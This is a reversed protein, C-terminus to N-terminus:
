GKHGRTSTKGRGSGRGRGVRIHPKRAGPNDALTNPLVTLLEIKKTSITEAASNTSFLRTFLRGLM